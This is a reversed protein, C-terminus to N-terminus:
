SQEMQSPNQIPLSKPNSPVSLQGTWRKYLKYGSVCFRGCTNYMSFATLAAEACNQFQVTNQSTLETDDIAALNRATDAPCKIGQSQAVIQGMRWTEMHHNYTYCCNTGNRASEMCSQVACDPVGSCLQLVLSLARDQLSDRQFCHLGWLQELSRLQAM